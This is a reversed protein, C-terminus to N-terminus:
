LSSSRNSLAGTWKKWLKSRRTGNSHHVGKYKYCLASHNYPSWFQLKTCSTDRMPALGFKYHLIESGVKPSQIHSIGEECEDKKDGKSTEIILVGKRSCYEIRTDKTWGGSLLYDKRCLSSYFVLLFWWNKTFSHSFWKSHKTKLCPCIQIGSGSTGLEQGMWCSATPGALWRGQM